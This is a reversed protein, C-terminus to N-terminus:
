RRRDALLGINRASAQRHHLVLSRILGCRESPNTVPWQRKCVFTGARVKRFATELEEVSTMVVPGFWAM